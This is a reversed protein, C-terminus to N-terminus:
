SVRKALFTEVVLRVVSAASMRRDDTVREVTEQQIAAVDGAAQVPHVHVQIRAAPVSVAVEPVVVVACDACTAGGAAEVPHRTGTREGVGGVIERGGGAPLTVHSFDGVEPVVSVLRLVVTRLATTARARPGVVLLDTGTAAGGLVEHRIAHREVACSCARERRAVHLVCFTHRAFHCRPCGRRGRGGGRTRATARVVARNLARAGVIVAPRTGGAKVSIAQTRRSARPVAASRTGDTRLRAPRAACAGVVVAPCARWIQVTVPQTRASTSTHRGVRANYHDLTAPAQSLYEVSSLYTNSGIM